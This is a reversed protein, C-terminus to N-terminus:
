NGGEDPVIWSSIPEIIQTVPLRVVFSRGSIAKKTNSIMVVAVCSHFTWNTADNVFSNISSISTLMGDTVM